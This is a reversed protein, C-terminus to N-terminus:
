KGLLRHILSEIILEGDESILVAPLSNVYVERGLVKRIRKSLLAWPTIYSLETVGLDEYRPRLTLGESGGLAIRWFVGNLGLMGAGSDGRVSFAHTPSSMITYESTLADSGPLKVDFKVLEIKGTAIRTARGAKVVQTGLEVNGQL